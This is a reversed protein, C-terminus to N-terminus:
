PRNWTFTSSQQNEWSDNKFRYPHITCGSKTIDILNWSGLYKHSTSGSDLIIPLNNARLDALTQRHTHGHLYLKIQPFQEVLEKLADARDLIKRVQNNFFPFHNVLIVHDDQSMKKLITKLTAELEKSFHGHSSLWPTAITTDLIILWWKNGLNKLTVGHDKLNYSSSQDFLTPFYNYFSKKRYAKKTYHDHNGPLTYVPIASCADIFKKAAQFEKARSTTTLDGSVIIHDVKLKTFIPILSSLNETEFVKKRTLLSNFNGLWRKSFFQIPNFYIKAFHLDSIHAIRFLNESM